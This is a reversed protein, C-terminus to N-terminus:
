RPADRREEERARGFVEVAMESTYPSGGTANFLAKDSTDEFGLKLYYRGPKTFTADPEAQEGVGIPRTVVGMGDVFGRRGFLSDNSASSNGEDALKFDPTVIELSASAGIIEELRQPPIFSQSAKLTEGRKLDIAYWRETDPLVQDTYQGPTILTAQRASPGGKIAKGKPVYERLARTTLARLEERLSEADTADRYVGGGASAICELEARAEPDVNFGIAQIRM